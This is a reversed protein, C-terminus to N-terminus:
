RRREGTPALYYGSGGKEVISV